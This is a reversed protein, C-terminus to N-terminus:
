VIYPIIANTYIYLMGALSEDGIIVPCEVLDFSETQVSVNFVVAVEETVGAPLVDDSIAACLRFGDGDPNSSIIVGLGTAISVM